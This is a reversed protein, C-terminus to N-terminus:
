ESIQSNSDDNVKDEKIGKYKVKKPKAEAEFVDAGIEKLRDINAECILIPESRRTRYRHGILEKKLKM